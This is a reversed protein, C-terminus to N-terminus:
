KAYFYHKELINLEMKCYYDTRMDVLFKIKQLYMVKQFGTFEAMFNNKKIIGTCDTTTAKKQKKL